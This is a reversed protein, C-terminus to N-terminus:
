FGTGGAVARPMEPIGALSAATVRGLACGRVSPVMPVPTPVDADAPAVLHLMESKLNSEAGKASLEASPALRENLSTVSTAAQVAKRM